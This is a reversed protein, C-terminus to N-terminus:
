VLREIDALKREEWPSRPVSESWNKDIPTAAPYFIVQLIDRWHSPQPNDARHIVQTTNCLLARGARGTFTSVPYQVTEMHRQISALDHCGSKVVERTYPRPLIHMPGDEENVESLLVFLKLMSSRRHDIHWTDAFVSGRRISSPYHCNRWVMVDGVTINSQYYAQVDNIITDDVLGKIEPIMRTPCPLLYRASEYAAYDKKEINALAPTGDLSDIVTAYRGAEIHENLKSRICGILRQDMYDDVFLCGESQLIGVDILQGESRQQFANRAACLEHWGQFALQGIYNGTAKCIFPHSVLKNVVGFSTVKLLITSIWYSLLTMSRSMGSIRM